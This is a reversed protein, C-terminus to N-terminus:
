LGGIGRSDGRDMPSERKKDRNRVFKWFLYIAIGGAVISLFGLGTRQSKVVEYDKSITSYTSNAQAQTIRMLNIQNSLDTNIRQQEEMKEKYGQTKYDMCATLQAYCQTYKEYYPLSTSMFSKFTDTNNALCSQVENLKTTISSYDTEASCTVNQYFLLTQSYDASSVSDNSISLSYSKDLNDTKITITKNFVDIDITKEIRQIDAFVMSCMLVAIIGLCLKKM